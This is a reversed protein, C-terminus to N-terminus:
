PKPSPMRSRGGRRIARVDRLLSFASLFMLGGIIWHELAPASLGAFGLVWPAAFIWAAVVLVVWEHSQRPRDIASLSIMFVLGGAIWANWAADAAAIAPIGGDIRAFTPTAVTGGFGLVWPSVFLWGALVLNVWDQRNSSRAARGTRNAGGSAM